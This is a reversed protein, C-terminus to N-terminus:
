KINCIKFTNIFIGLIKIIKIKKYYISKELRYIEPTLNNSDKSNQIKNLVKM